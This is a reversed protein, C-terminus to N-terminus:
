RVTSSLTPARRAAPMEAHRRALEALQTVVVRAADPRGLGITAERMLDLRETHTLLDDLISRLEAPSQAAVAAGHQLLFRANGEEQGPIPRYIIMPLRKVLAESITIGGAKTILLDSVTMLEEVNEAYGIVHYPHRAGAMRDHVHRELHRDYGCVVIAQLPHALQRLVHVVDLVGGMMAYAGAMVLVVPIGPILGLQKLLAPRDLPRTFERVIPLGSVVIREPHIGRQVLGDRVGSSPVCYCDVGPHTWQSHNVYDTVTTLCPIDTRGALRLDSMTGAPTCHVACVVDPRDNELYRALREMGMRNITRQLFSDPRVDGTWKYFLGYMLPARRVSQVYSFRTVADFLPHVFRIFYDVIEVQGGTQSKWEEAIAAAARM